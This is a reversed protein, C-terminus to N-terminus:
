FLIMKLQAYIKIYEELLYSNNLKQRCFLSFNACCHYWSNLPFCHAPPTGRECSSVINTVTIFLSHADTLLHTAPIESEGRWCGVWSWRIKLFFKWWSALCPPFFDVRLCKGLALEIYNNIWLYYQDHKKYKGIYLKYIHLTFFLHSGSGQGGSNM